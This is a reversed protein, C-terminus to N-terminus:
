KIMNPFYATIIAPLEPNMYQRMREFLEPRPSFHLAAIPEKIGDIDWEAGRFFVNYASSLKKIRINRIKGEVAQDRILNTLAGEEETGFYYMGGFIGKIVSECKNTIFLSGGNWRDVGDKKYGYTTLGIEYEDIELEKESVPRVQFVDLDKLWYLEDEIMDLKFLEFMATTKSSRPHHKCFVHDGLVTAKIGNYEYDFNTVLLIDAPNVGLVSLNDAQVKFLAEGVENFSKSPNLYVYIHKM